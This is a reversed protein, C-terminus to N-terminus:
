SKKGPCFRGSRYRLCNKCGLCTMISNNEKAKNAWEADVLLGRGIATFDALNNEILYNAQEPTRIDMVVIVPINVNRKIETGGYVVANYNFDEPVKPLDEEAIQGPFIMGFSVHLLDAGAKELEKAIEISSQLNPENFGMRCGIIFDHGVAKRIEAIIETAFRCRNNINGGYSDERKNVLPSFFQSILYGHAGHLEIGDFGAKKARVAADVFDKQLNRIEDIKLARASIPNKGMPSTGNYDSPAVIDGSTSKTAQLGAHHLQVLTKAGHKHVAKAIKSVGEIYEDSWLRLQKESLRGNSSVCNAEVIVLGVGGKAREEYHQIHEETVLGSEDLYDFTVMPPMVVRNRIKLNKITIDSFLTNM